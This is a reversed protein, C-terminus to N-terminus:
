RKFSSPGAFSGAKEKEEPKGGGHAAHLASDPAPGRLIMGRQDLSEPADRRLIQAQL